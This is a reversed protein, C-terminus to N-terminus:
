AKAMTAAPVMSRTTSAPSFAQSMSAAMGSISPAPPTTVSQVPLGTPGFPPCTATAPSRAQRSSARTASLREAFAAEEAASAAGYGGGGGGRGGGGPPALRETEQRRRSRPADRRGCGERGERGRGEGQAQAQGGLGQGAGPAPRAAC